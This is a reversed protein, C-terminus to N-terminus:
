CSQLISETKSRNPNIAPRCVILPVSVVSFCNHTKHKGITILFFFIIEVIALIYNISNLKYDNM